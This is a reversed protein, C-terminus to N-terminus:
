SPLMGEAESQAANIAAGVRACATEKDEDAGIWFPEGWLIAARAFPHPVLYSDWSAMEKGSSVATGVAIIPRGTKKAFYVVGEQAVRAPGRPGDPTFALVGGSQMAKLIERTAAAGRRGTSGRVLNYGLRRFNEAQLDGDKSLSILALFGRDRVRWLPVMTRGHWTVLIAGQNAQITADRREGGEERLRLTSCIGKVLLVIAGVILRVKLTVERPKEREGKV